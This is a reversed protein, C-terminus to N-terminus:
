AHRVRRGFLRGALKIMDLFIHATRDLTRLGPKLYFLKALDDETLPYLDTEETIIGDKVAYNRISTFPEIRAWSLGVGGRRFLLINAKIFFSLLKIYGRIDQGPTNCFFSFGFRSGKTKRAIKFVQKIDDETFEKGMMKLAQNTIADPSFAFLECGAERALSVFEETFGKPSYWGSWKVKIKRRIIEKCINLAHEHPLNFVSDLFSFSKANYKYVLEEVEDVVHEATRLRLGRGNLHPYSCYICRLPCGRKTQIGVALPHTMYRAINTDDRKPLPLRGFDPLPRMGTFLVNNGDKIYIGKVIHPSDLNNLLEPFSDEGELYIGFDIAPVEKMIREPFLSFGSGGIVIKIHPTHKRIVEVTPKLTKVYVFLDRIQTTDINRQSIGVVQPKFATLVRELEGYPDDYLNPDFIRVDHSTLVAALYALGIPYLLGEPEKRGLYAQVLLVKM